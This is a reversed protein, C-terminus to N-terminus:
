YISFCVEGTSRSVVWSYTMSLERCGGATCPDRMQSHAHGVADSHKSVFEM